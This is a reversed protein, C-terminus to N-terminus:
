RDVELVYAPHSLSGVTVMRAMQNGDRVLVLKIEEGTQMSEVIKYYRKKTVALDENALSVENMQIVVDGTQLGAKAAQTGPTVCTLKVGKTLIESCIGIFPKDFAASEIRVSDKGSMDLLQKAMYAIERMIHEETWEGAATPATSLAWILVPILMLGKLDTPRASNSVTNM